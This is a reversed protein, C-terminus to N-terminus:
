ATESVFHVRSGQYGGLVREMGELCGRFASGIGCCASVNPRFTSSHLGRGLLLQMYARNASVAARM